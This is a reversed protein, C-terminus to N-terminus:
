RGPIIAPAPGILHPTGRLRSTAGRLGYAMLQIKGIGKLHAQVLQTIPVHPHFWYRNKQHEIRYSSWRGAFVLLSERPGGVPYNWRHWELCSKMGIGSDFRVWSGPRLAMAQSKGRKLYVNRLRGEPSILQKVIIHQGAEVGSMELWFFSTKQIRKTAVIAFEILERKGDVTELQYAVWQGVRWPLKSQHAEAHGLAPLWCTLAIIFIGLRRVTNSFTNQM